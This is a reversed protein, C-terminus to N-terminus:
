PDVQIKTILWSVRLALSANRRAPVSILNGAFKRVQVSPKEFRIPTRRLFYAGAPSSRSRNYYPCGSLLIGDTGLFPRRVLRKPADARGSLTGCRFLSQCTSLAGKGIRTAGFSVETPARPDPAQRRRTSSDAQVIRAGSRVPGADMMGLGFRWGTAPVM